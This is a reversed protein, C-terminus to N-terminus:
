FFFKNERMRPLSIVDLNHMRLLIIVQYFFTLIKFFKTSFHITVISSDIRRFTIRSSLRQYNSSLAFVFFSRTLFILCIMIICFIHSFLYFYSMSIFIKSIWFSKSFNLNIEYYMKQWLWKENERKWWSCFPFFYM